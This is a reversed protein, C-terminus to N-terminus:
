KAILECAEELLKLLKTNNTSTPHLKVGAMIQSIFIRANQLSLGVLGTLDAKIEAEKKGKTAKGKGIDALGKTKDAAKKNKTAIKQKGEESCNKMTKWATRSNISKETAQTDFDIRFAYLHKLKLASIGLLKAHEAIKDGTKCHQPNFLNLAKVSTLSVLYNHVSQYGSRSDLLLTVMDSSNDWSAKVTVSKIDKM